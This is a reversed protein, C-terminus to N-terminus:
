RSINRINQMNFFLPPSLGIAAAVHPRQFRLNFQPKCDAKEVLACDVREEAGETNV